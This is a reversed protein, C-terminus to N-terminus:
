APLLESSSRRTRCGAGLSVDVGRRRLHYRLARACRDFLDHQIHLGSREHPVREDYEDDRMEDGSGVAFPDRLPDAFLPDRLAELAQLGGLGANVGPGLDQLVAQPTRRPGLSGQVYEM